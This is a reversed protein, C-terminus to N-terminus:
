AAIGPAPAADRGGTAAYYRWFLRAAVSRHPSFGEALAALAKETPRSELGFARQVAIQLALDGAPFLDPHGCAFLLHCEATWRGIGKVAALEAIAAPAPLTELRAFDLSGERVAQALARLTRMKPRSLGAARLREEGADLIAAADHLPVSASLRGFIAEASAKSVQQAMVIAILGPLGGASARLPVEGAVAAVAALRPDLRVLAALGAEIDRQTAIRM